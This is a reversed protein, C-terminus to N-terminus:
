AASGGSELSNREGHLTVTLGAETKKAVLDGGHLRLYWSHNRSTADLPLIWLARNANAQTSSASIPLVWWQNEEYQVGLGQCRTFVMEVPTRVDKRTVLLDQGVRTVNANEIAQLIGDANDPQAGYLAARDGLAYMHASVGLLLFISILAKM